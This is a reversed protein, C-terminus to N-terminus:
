KFVATSLGPVQKKWKGSIILIWGKVEGYGFNFHYLFSVYNLLFFEKLGWKRRRCAQWYFPLALIFYLAILALGAYVLFLKGIIVGAIVAGLCALVGLFFPVPVFHRWAFTYPCLKHSFADWLGYYRAKHLLKSLTDRAYYINKIEPTMFIKGGQKRIRCCLEYDQHRVLREDYLGVKKFIEKRFAGYPVTDVYQADKKTRFACGGMSFPSSLFETIIQAMLTNGATTTCLPGGVCWVDKKNLHEVCKPIYDPSYEAHADVRIIIDGKAKKIGRNMAHPVVRDPNSLVKVGSHNQEYERLVEKTGDNSNSDVVVIIELHERPYQTNLISSLSKRIFDAENGCPM